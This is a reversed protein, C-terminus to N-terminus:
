FKTDTPLRLYKMKLNLPVGNKFNLSFKKLSQGNCFNAQHILNAAVAFVKCSPVFLNRYVSALAVVGPTYIPV